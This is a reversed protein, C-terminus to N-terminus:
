TGSAVKYPTRRRHELVLSAISILAFVLCVSTMMVVIELAIRNVEIGRVMRLAAMATSSGGGLTGILALVGAVYMSYRRRHPNLGVVGCFLIPIGLMMPYFQVPMKQMSWILGALTLGCLLLGTVIAIRSM